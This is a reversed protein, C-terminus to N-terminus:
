DWVLPETVPTTEFQPKDGILATTPIIEEALFMVRMRTPLRQKLVYSERKEYSLGSDGKVLQSLGASGDLANVLQESLSYRLELASRSERIIFYRNGPQYDVRSRFEMLLELIAIDTTVEKQVDFMEFELTELRDGKQGAALDTHGGIFRALMRANTRIAVSTTGFAEAGTASATPIEAVAFRRGEKDIRFVTGPPELSTPRTYFQWGPELLAAPATARRDILDTRLIYVSALVMAGVVLATILALRRARTWKGKVTMRSRPM